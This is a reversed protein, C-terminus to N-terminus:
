TIIKSIKIPKNALHFIIKVHIVKISSLKWEFGGELPIQKKTHKWLM